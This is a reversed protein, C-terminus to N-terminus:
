ECVEMYEYPKLVEKILPLQFDLNRKKMDIVELPFDPTNTRRREGCVDRPTTLHIVKVQYGMDEALQKWRKVYSARVTCEDVVVDLGRLMHARAFTYAMGHIQQELPGYYRHGHAARLDDACIVQVGTPVLKTSVYTSKGAGPLGLMIYLTPQKVNLSEM